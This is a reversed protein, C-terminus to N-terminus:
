AIYNSDLNSKRHSILQSAPHTPSISPALSGKECIKAQFVLKLFGSDREFFIFRTGPACIGLGLKLITPNIEQSGDVIEGSNESQMAWTIPFFFLKLNVIYYYKLTLM